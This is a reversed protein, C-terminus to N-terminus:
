SKYKLYAEMLKGEDLKSQSITTMINKFEDVDIGAFMESFKTFTDEAKGYLIDIQRSVADINSNLKYDIREDIAYMLSEYQVKDIVETIRNIIDTQTVIKYKDNLDEPLVLDTYMVVTTYGISFKLMEPMYDGDKSFCLESANKAFEICENLGLSQKVKVNLTNWEIPVVSSNIKDAINQIQNTITKKTRAM